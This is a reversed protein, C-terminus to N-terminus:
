KNVSFTLRMDNRGDDEVVLALKGQLVALQVGPHGNLGPHGAVEALGHAVAGAAALQRQADAAATFGSGELL